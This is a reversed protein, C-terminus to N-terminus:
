FRPSIASFVYQKEHGVCGFGLRGGGRSSTLQAPPSKPTFSASSKSPSRHYAFGRHPALQLASGPHSFRSPPSTTAASLLSVRRPNIRCLSTFAVAVTEDHTQRETGHRTFSDGLALPVFRVQSKHCPLAAVSGTLHNNPHLHNLYGSRTPMALANRLCWRWMHLLFAGFRFVPTSAKHQKLFTLLSKLAVATPYRQPFYSETM